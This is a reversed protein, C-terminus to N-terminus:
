YQYTQSPNLALPAASTVLLPQRRQSGDLGECSWRLQEGGAHLGYKNWALKTAVLSSLPQNRGDSSCASSSSIACRRPVRERCDIKRSGMAWKSDKGPDLQM